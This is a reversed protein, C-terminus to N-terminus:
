GDCKLNYYNLSQIIIDEKIEIDYECNGIGKLSSTRIKESLNKKDFYANKIIEDYPASINWVKFPINFDLTSSRKTWCYKAM